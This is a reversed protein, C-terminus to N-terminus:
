RQYWRFRERDASQLAQYLDGGDCYETILRIVPPDFCVGRFAVINEHTLSRLKACEGQLFKQQNIETLRRTEKVAVVM